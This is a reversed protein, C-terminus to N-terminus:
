NQVRKCEKIKKFNDGSGKGMKKRMKMKKRTGKKMRTGGSQTWNEKLFVDKFSTLKLDQFIIRQIKIKSSWFAWDQSRKIM